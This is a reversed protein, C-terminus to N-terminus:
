PEPVATIEYLVLICSNTILSWELLYQGVAATKAGINTQIGRGDSRRIRPPQAVDCPPRNLPRAATSRESVGKLIRVHRNTPGHLELRDGGMPSGTLRGPLM